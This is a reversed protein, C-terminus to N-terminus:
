TTIQKINSGRRTGVERLLARQRAVLDNSDSVYDTLLGNANVAPTFLSSTSTAFVAAAASAFASRRGFSASPPAIAAQGEHPQQPHSARVSVAHGRAPGSRRARAAAASPGLVSAFAAHCCSM